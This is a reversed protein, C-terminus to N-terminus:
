KKQITNDVWEGITKLAEAKKHTLQDAFIIRFYREYQPSFSFITGPTFKIKMAECYEYFQKMDMGEAAKIWISYGGKPITYGIKNPFYESLVVRIQYAQEALQMRFKRLHRDYSKTRLMKCIVEQYIPSVTSGLAFKIQEAKEFYKGPSLWGLRIGGAITKSYSSFILVLGNKDWSQITRPRNGSFSLDGYIDNEIIAIEKSEAIALLKIKQIDSLITGTPNHFNPTLVVAKIATTDCITELLDVDFGSEHHVPIEIVRLKLTRIVELVSFICPSEIAIIDNPECVSALAIYLAQLAGDTIIIQEANISAGHLKNRRAIEERLPLLGNSPYYRLLQAGKERIIQQMMRLILKQPILLDGPAAVNFETLSKRGQTTIASLNHQFKTEQINFPEIQNPNNDMAWQKSSVYYGSKPISEVLGSIILHEYVNQITSVSTKYKEKLIRISPLKDGKKYIGKNIHGELINAIEEYKYKM